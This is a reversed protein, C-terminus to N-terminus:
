DIDLRPNLGLLTPDLGFSECIAEQDRPSLLSYYGSDGLSVIEGHPGELYFGGSKTQKLVVKFGLFHDLDKKLQGVTREHSLGV